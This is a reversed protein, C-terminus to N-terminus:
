DPEGALPLVFWFTAGDGPRSTVGVRGHHQEIIARCIHLGIGLGEVNRGNAVRYFREWIRQQEEEAIGTGQDSVEVRVFHNHCCVRVTVPGPEASYKCANSLYNTVVQGIRDADVNVTISHPPQDLIILRRPAIMRHEEVVGRVIAALDCPIPAVRLTQASIRAVDLLDGVRRNLHDAQASASDLLALVADLHQHELSAPAILPLARRLRRAALETYGKMSTLPTRLEHSTMNLFIDMRQNAELLAIEHSRAAERENVLRERDIVLAAAQAAAQIIQRREGAYDYVSDGLLISVAGVLRDGIHVPMFLRSLGGSQPCPLLLVYEGCQFREVDEAPMCQRPFLGSHEQWWRHEVEIHTGVVAKLTSSEADADIAVISVALCGLSHRILGAVHGALGDGIEMFSVQQM